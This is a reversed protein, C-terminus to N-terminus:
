MRKLVKGEEMAPKLLTRDVGGKTLGDIMDRTDTWGLSRIVRCRIRDKISFVHLILSAEQPTATYKASIAGYVSRADIDVDIPPPM